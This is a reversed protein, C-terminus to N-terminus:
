GYSPIDPLPGAPDVSMEGDSERGILWALLAYGAGTVATASADSARLFYQRGSNVDNLVAPPCAPDQAYEGTVRYLEDSVFWDPWNPPGYNAGLDAHHVEVEFLRRNLVFWAPFAPGRIMRVKTLWAEEPLARARAFFAKATSGVDATLEDASRGAGAEIDATRAEVSPYQPTEVGTEAWTLLNLLGDCNRAVHTLVHGRSWGPLLSPERMQDDSLASASELLRDFAGENQEIM